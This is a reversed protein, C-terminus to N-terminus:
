VSSLQLTSQKLTKVMRPEHNPKITISQKSKHKPISEQNNQKKLVKSTHGREERAWLIAHKPDMLFNAKNMEHMQMWANKMTIRIPKTMKMWATVCAITPKNEM